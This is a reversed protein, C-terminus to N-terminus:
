FGVPKEGQSRSGPAGEALYRNLLVIGPADCNWRAHFHLRWCRVNTLYALPKLNPLHFIM